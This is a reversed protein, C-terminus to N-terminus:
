GQSPNMLAKFAYPIYKILDSALVCYESMVKSAIESTLGHLYVACCAAQELSIGQACFGAIMGTLVDGSGAKSM